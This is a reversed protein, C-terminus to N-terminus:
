IGYEGPSQSSPTTATAGAAPLLLDGKQMFDRRYGSPTRGTLRKFLRCFYFPDDCGLLHAVTEIKANTTRLYECAKEIKLKNIFSRPSEGTHRRFQSAYYAHSMKAIAALERISVHMGLNNRLVELTRGLRTEVSEPGEKQNCALRCIEGLLQHLACSAQVLDRYAQGAHLVTLVKEFAQVFSMEPELHLCCRRGNGSLVDYYQQALTGNFHIWYYSWPDKPDAEYAHFEFPRLLAIMGRTMRYRSHSIQLEGSGELCFLLTFTWDGNPRSVRQGRAKPFYGLRCPLLASTLPQRSAYEIVRTDLKLLREGPFSDVGLISVLRRGNYNFVRTHEDAMYMQLSLGPKGTDKGGPHKEGAASM